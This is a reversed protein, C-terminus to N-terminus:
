LIRKQSRTAAFSKISTVFGQSIFLFCNLYDKRRYNFLANDIIVQVNKETILIKESYIFNILLHLSSSDLQRIAVLDQDKESFNTFMALFYPSALALVV